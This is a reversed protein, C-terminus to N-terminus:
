EARLAQVRADCVRMRLAQGHTTDVLTDTRVTFTGRRPRHRPLFRTRRQRLVYPEGPSPCTARGLLLHRVTDLGAAAEATVIGGYSHAAVVTPERSATLVQRVAAVDEGM